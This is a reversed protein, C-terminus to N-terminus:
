CSYLRGLGILETGTRFPVSVREMAGETVGAGETLGDSARGANLFWNVAEADEPSASM